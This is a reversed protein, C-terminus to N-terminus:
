RVTDTDTDTGPTAGVGQECSQANRKGKEMDDNKEEKGAHYSCLEAAGKSYLNVLLSCVSDKLLFSTITFASREREM